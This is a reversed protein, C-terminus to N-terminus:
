KMRASKSTESIHLDKLCTECYETTLDALPKKETDRSLRADLLEVAANLKDEPINLEHAIKENINM